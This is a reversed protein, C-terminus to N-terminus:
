IWKIITDGVFGKEWVVWMYDVAPNSYAEVNNNLSCSFRSIFAYIIKPPFKKYIKEYRGKGSLYRQPFLLACKRGPKLITLLKVTFDIAINYPPNTIIDGDWEGNFDFIDLVEGYGYDYKDTSKAHIGYKKLVESLNGCGCACEWVNSFKELSLLKELAKPDTAYFDHSHREHKSFNHFGSCVMSRSNALTIKEHSNMDNMM